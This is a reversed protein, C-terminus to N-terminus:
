HINRLDQGGSRAARHSADSTPLIFAGGEVGDACANM